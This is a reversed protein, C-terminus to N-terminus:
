VNESPKAKVMIDASGSSRYHSPSYMDANRFTDCLHKASSFCCAEAVADLSMATHSLLQVAQDIRHRILAEQPSSDGAQRFIRFLQSRSLGIADAMKQVSLPSNSSENEIMWMARRYYQEASSNGRDSVPACANLLALLRILGGSAALDGMPLTSAERYMSRICETVSDFQKDLSLVPSLHSVGIDTLMSQANGGSFGAWLYHWPEQLDAQYVTIEKPFVFFAQGAHVPYDGKSNHLVGHGSLVVHMLYYGRIAPGYSHGPVCEEEGCVTLAPLPFVKDTM